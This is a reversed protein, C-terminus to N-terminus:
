DLNACPYSGGLYRMIMCAFEARTAQDLPNLNEGDGKVIGRAVVMNM